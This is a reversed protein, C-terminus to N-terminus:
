RFYQRHCRWLLVVTEDSYPNSVGSRALQSRVEDGDEVGFYSYGSCTSSCLSLTMSNSSSAPGDLANASYCGLPQLVRCVPQSRPEFHYYSAQAGVLFFAAMLPLAVPSHKMAPLRLSSLNLEVYLSLWLSYAYIASLLVSARVNPFM